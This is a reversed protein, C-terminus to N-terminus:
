HTIKRLHMQQNIILTIRRFTCHLPAFVDIILHIVIHILLYVGVTVLISTCVLASAPTPAAM